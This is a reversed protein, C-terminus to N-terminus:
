GLDALLPSVGITSLFRLLDASAVVTTRRNDLPHLAIRPSQALRQDLVLRVFHETDNVLAFASVAGSEVGLLRALDDASAFRLRKSGIRAPLAKLDLPAEAPMVVLWYSGGADKLLLNRTHEADITSWHARSQEVTFVPPHSHTEHAIGLADLHDLFATM